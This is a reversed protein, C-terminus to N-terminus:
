ARLTLEPSTTEGLMAIKIDEDTVINSIIKKRVEETLEKSEKVFDVVKLSNYEKIAADIRLKNQYVVTGFCSLTYVGLKRKVLGYTLLRQIRSYYQKVSFGYIDRLTQSRVNRNNAIFNLIELTGRDSLIGMLSETDLM